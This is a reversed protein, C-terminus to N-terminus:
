QDNSFGVVVFTCGIACIFCVAIERDIDYICDHLVSFGVAGEEGFNCVKKALAVVQCAKPLANRKVVKQLLWKIPRPTSHGFLHSQILPVLGQEKM